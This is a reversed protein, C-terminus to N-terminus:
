HAHEVEPADLFTIKYGAFIEMIAEAKEGESMSQGEPTKVLAQYDNFPKEHEFNSVSLFKASQTSRNKIGHPANAPANACEGASVPTWTLAGGADIGM